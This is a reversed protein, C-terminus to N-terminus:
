RLPEGPWMDLMKRKLQAVRGRVEPAARQSKRLDVPLWQEVGEEEMDVRDSDHDSMNLCNVFVILLLLLQFFFYQSILPFFLTEGTM